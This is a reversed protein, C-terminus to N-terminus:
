PAFRFKVPRNKSSPIKPWLYPSKGNKTDSKTPWLRERTEIHQSNAEDYRPKEFGRAPMLFSAIPWFREYPRSANL